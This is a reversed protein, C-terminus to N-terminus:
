PMDLWSENGKREWLQKGHERKRRLLITTTISPVSARAKHMCSLYQAVCGLRVVLELKWEMKDWEFHFLNRGPSHSGPCIM